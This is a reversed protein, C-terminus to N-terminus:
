FTCCWSYVRFYVISKPPYRHTLVPEGTIIFIDRQHSINISSAVGTHSPNATSIPFRLVKREIKSHVQFQRLFKDKYKQPGPTWINLFNKFQNKLTTKKATSATGM